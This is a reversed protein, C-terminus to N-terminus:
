TYIVDYGESLRRKYIKGENSYCVTPTFVVLFSLLLGFILYVNYTKSEICCEAEKCSGNKFKNNMDEIIKNAQQLIYGSFNRCIYFLCLFCM